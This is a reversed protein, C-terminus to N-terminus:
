EKDGLLERRNELYKKLFMKEDFCSEAYSRANRAMAHAVGQNSIILEVASVIEDVSGIKIRFGTKKNVIANSPGPYETAIIPVAMASAEIASLGFGERYSPFVFLNMASLYKEVENTWGVKIIDECEMFYKLLRPEITKKKEIPGVFLLKASPYEKKLISFAEILENSGKEKGLRGVTGIVLDDEGIGYKQRIEFNYEEKKTVDFKELNVGKASGNWIVGSNEATYLGEKRCFELNGFSDPQIYTSNNCISKELFKFIKRTIGKRSIYIMGWQCYLRVPIKAKKAAVSAYYSANPTSYQVMDFKEKKFIKYLRNISAIGNLSIGRKIKVPIYKIYEPLSSAFENDTNCILTVDYGGVNHLYKASELVFAKMTDSITTVICIKKM